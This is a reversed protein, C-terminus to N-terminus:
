YSQGHYQRKITFTFNLNQRCASLKAPKTSVKFVEARENMFLPTQAIAYLQNYHAVDQAICRLTIEEEVKNQQNIEYARWSQLEQNYNAIPTSLESELSRSLEVFRFADFCGDKNLWFYLWESSEIYRLNLKAGDINVDGSDNGAYVQYRSNAPSWYTVYGSHYITALSRGFNAVATLGDIPSASIANCIKFAPHAATSHLAGNSLRGNIVVNVTLALASLDHLDLVPFGLLSNFMEGGIYYKDVTGVTSIKVARFAYGNIVVEAYTGVNSGRDFTFEMSSPLHVSLLLDLADPFDTYKRTITIAM